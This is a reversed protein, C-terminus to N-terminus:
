PKKSKQQREQQEQMKKQMKEMQKTFKQFEPMRKAMLKFYQFGLWFLIFMGAIWGIIRMPSLEPLVEIPVGNNLGVGIEAEEKRIDAWFKQADGVYNVKVATERTPSGPHLIAVACHNSHSYYIRDVEGVKLYRDAFIRFDIAPRNLDERSINATENTRKYLGMSLLTSMLFSVGMVVLLYRRLKKVAEPDLKPFKPMKPTGKGDGGKGDGDSDSPHATRVYRISTVFPTSRPTFRINASTSPVAALSISSFSCTTPRSLGRALLLGGRPLRSAVLISFMM